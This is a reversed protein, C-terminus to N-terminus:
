GQTERAVGYIVESVSATSTVARGFQDAEYNGETRVVVKVAHKRVVRGHIYAGKHAGSIPSGPQQLLNCSLGGRGM